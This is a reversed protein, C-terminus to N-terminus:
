EVVESYHQNLVLAIAQESLGGKIASARVKEESIDREYALEVLREIADPYQALQEVSIIIMDESKADDDSVTALLADLVYKGVYPVEKITTILIEMTQSPYAAVLRQAIQDASDPEATVASRVIENFFEPSYKCAASTAMGAYSPEASVAIEVIEIPTSVKYDNAVMIIDDVFMPQASVSTAIIEKYQEPYATLALSVFEATKQPYRDLLSNLAKTISNSNGVQSKFFQISQASPALTKEQVNQSADQAAVISQGYILTSFGISLGVLHLAKM